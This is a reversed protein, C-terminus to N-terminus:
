DGGGAAMGPAGRGRSPAADGQGMAARARTAFFWMAAVTVADLAFAALQFPHGEFAFAVLFGMSASAKLFLLLWLAAFFRRLDVQLLVCGFGLTFVNAVALVRWVVSDEAHPYPGGGLAADLALFSAMSGAPDIAYLAAPILFNLALVTYVVHFATKM